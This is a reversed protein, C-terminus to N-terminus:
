HSVAKKESRGEWGRWTGNAGRVTRAFVILAAIGRAEASAGAVRRPRVTNSGTKVAVVVIASVGILGMTDTVYSAQQVIWRAHIWNEQGSTGCGVPM